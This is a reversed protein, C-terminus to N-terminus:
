ASGNRRAASAHEELKLRSRRRRPKIEQALCASWWGMGLWTTVEFALLIPLTKSEPQWRMLSRLGALWRRFFFNLLGKTM